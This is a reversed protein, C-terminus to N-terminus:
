ANKWGKYWIILNEPNVEIPQCGPFMAVIEPHKNDHEICLLEFRLGAGVLGRLTELNTGETDINVFDYVNGYKGLLTKPSISKVQIPKFKIKSGKEWKHKHTHDTTSVADGSTDYFDVVGDSPCVASNELQIIPNDKHLLYLLRFPEPSPEVCVGSWGLEVLRLSNSFLKGDYAGVDLFRGERGAFYNVIKKEEQNQSYV